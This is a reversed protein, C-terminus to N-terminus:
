VVYLTTCPTRPIISQHCLVFVIGDCNIVFVCSWPILINKYRMVKVRAICGQTSSNVARGVCPGFPHVVAGLAEKDKFGVVFCATGAQHWESPRVVSVEKTTLGNDLLRWQVNGAREFVVIM